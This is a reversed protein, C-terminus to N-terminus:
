PMVLVRSLQSQGIGPVRKLKDMEEPTVMYRRQGEPLYANLSEFEQRFQSKIMLKNEPTLQQGPQVNIGAKQAFAAMMQENFDGKDLKGLTMVIDSQRKFADDPAPPKPEKAKDTESLHKMMDLQVKAAEAADGRTAHYDSTLKAVEKYKQENTLNKDKSVKDIAAATETWKKDKMDDVTFGPLSAGNIKYKNWVPIMGNNLANARTEPSLNKNTGLELSLKAINLDKEWEMARKKQAVEAVQSVLQFGGAIGKSIASGPDAFAEPM